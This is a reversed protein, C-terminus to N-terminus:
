TESCIVGQVIVYESTFPNTFGYFISSPRFNQVIPRRLIRFEITEDDHAPWVSIGEGRGREIKIGDRVLM